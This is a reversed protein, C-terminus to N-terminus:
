EAPGRKAVVDTLQQSGGCQLRHRLPMLRRRSLHSNGPAHPRAVYDGDWLCRIDIMHPFVGASASDLQRLLVECRNVGRVPRRFALNRQIKKSM